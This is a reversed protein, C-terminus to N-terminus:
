PEEPVPDDYSGAPGEYLRGGRLPWAFAVCGHLGLTQQQMVPAPRGPGPCKEHGHGLRHGVEHNVLYQRYEELPAGYRPVGHVWRAVNLVVREGNRCSTYGDDGPCLDDRTGPTTLYVTFDYPSGNPVRQLRWRGDGTWSRPDALTSTVASAFADPEINRIGREVAVRYRMLQGSRGAVPGGGAAFRWTGDGRAPYTIEPPPPPTPSVSPPPALSRSPPAPTAPAASPIASEPLGARVALAGALVVGCAVVAM